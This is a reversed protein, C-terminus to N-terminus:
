LRISGKFLYRNRAMPKRAALEAHNFKQELRRVALEAHTFTQGPKQVARTGHAFKQGRGGGGQGRIQKTRDCLLFCNYTYIDTTEFLAELESITDLGPQVRVCIGDISANSPTGTVLCECRM